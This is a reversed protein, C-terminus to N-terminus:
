PELQRTVTEMASINLTMFHKDAWDEAIISLGAARRIDNISFAGSGILKEINAANGFLDFHLM